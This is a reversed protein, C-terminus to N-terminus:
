DEENTNFLNVMSKLDLASAEMEETAMKEVNINHLYVSQLYVTSLEFLSSLWLSTNFHKNIKDTLGIMKLSDGGLDFFNRNV